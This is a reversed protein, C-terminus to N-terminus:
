HIQALQSEDVVVKAKARLAALLTREAEARSEIM